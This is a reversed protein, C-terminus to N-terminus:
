GGEHRAPHTRNLYEEVNTYGDADRDGTGDVAEPDFGYRREWEDPMGDGDTDPPAPLSSLEPWGGVDEPTDILRAVGARVEAVVRQDVADRRPLIAGASDLVVDWVDEPAHTRVVPVDFPSAVRTGSIPEGEANTDSYAIAIGANGDAYVSCAPTYWAQLRTGSMSAHNAVYNLRMPRRAKSHCGHLLNNRVDATQRGCCGSAPQSGATPCRSSHHALLNHHFSVGGNTGLLVGFGHPGEPYTSHELGESIICWQVTLSDIEGHVGLVEDNGWSLSCHDVIINTLLSDACASGTVLETAWRGLHFWIGSGPSKVSLADTQWYGGLGLMYKAMRVQHSMGSRPAEAADGTLKRGIQDGPRFRMYRVVVQSAMIETGFNRLCIGGGPATQGALTVYPKAIVLPAKLEITGSVRFVITRRGDMSCASRLSGPIPAEEDPHYDMLNTVPVVIGGRGGITRAGFGEAGPFALVEASTPEAALLACGGVSMALLKLVSRM